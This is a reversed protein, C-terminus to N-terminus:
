AEVKARNRGTELVRKGYGNGGYWLGV